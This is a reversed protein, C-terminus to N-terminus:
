EWTTSPRHPAAYQKTMVSKIAEIVLDPREIQIFHRSGVAMGKRSNRSLRALETQQKQEDEIVNERTLVVLPLGALSDPTLSAQHLITYASRWSEMMAPGKNFELTEFFRRELWLHITPLPEPLKHFRPACTPRSHLSRYSSPPPLNAQLQEKTVEHLDVRKGNIGIGLEYTDVLVMGVVQDPHERENKLATELDHAVQEVTDWEPGPDSWRYGARDYPCVRTTNAIETEVLAPDITFGGAGAELVVTPSGQGTCYLHLKRGGVDFLKGPPAPAPQDAASLTAAFALFRFAFFFLSGRILAKTV